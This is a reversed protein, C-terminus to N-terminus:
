SDCDFAGCGSLTNPVQVIDHSTYKEGQKLLGKRHCELLFGIYLIQKLKQSILVM